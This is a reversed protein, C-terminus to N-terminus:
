GGRKATSADTRLNTGNYIITVSELEKSSSTKSTSKVKNSFTGYFSYVWGVKKDNYQIQVWNHEHALVKFAQGKTATGIKKANLDPKKRVNLTDM